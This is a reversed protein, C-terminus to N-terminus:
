APMRESYFRRYSMSYWRVIARLVDAPDFGLMACADEFTVQAAAGEFWAAAAPARGDRKELDRVADLILAEGFAACPQRRHGLPPATGDYVALPELYDAADLEFGAEREPYDAVDPVLWRPRQWRAVAHQHGWSGRSM